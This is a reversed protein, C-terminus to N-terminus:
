SNMKVSLDMRFRTNGYEFIKETGVTVDINAEFLYCLSRVVLSNLIPSWISLRIEEYELASILDYDRLTKLKDSAHVLLFEVVTAPNAHTLPLTYVGNSKAQRYIEGIFSIREYCSLDSSQSSINSINRFWTLESELRRLRRKMTSLLPESLTPLVYAIQNIEEELKTSDVPLKGQAASVSLYESLSETDELFATPEPVISVPEGLGYVVHVLAGGPGKLDINEFMRKEKIMDFVEQSNEMDRLVDLFSSLFVETQSTNSKYTEDQWQALQTIDRDQTLFMDRIEEVNESNLDFEDNGYLSPKDEGGEEDDSDEDYLNLEALNERSEKEDWKGLMANIEEGEINFKELYTRYKAKTEDILAKSLVPGGTEEARKINDSYYDYKMDSFNAGGVKRDVFQKFVTLFKIMDYKSDPRFFSKNIMNSRLNKIDYSEV